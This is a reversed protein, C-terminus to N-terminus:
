QTNNENGKWPTGSNTNKNDIYLRDVYVGPINKEKLSQLHQRFEEPRPAATMFLTWRSRDWNVPSFDNLYVALVNWAFTACNPGNVYWRRGFGLNGESDIPFYFKSFHDTTCLDLYSRAAKAQNQRACVRIIFVIDTRTEPTIRRCSEKGSKKYAESLPNFGLPHDLQSTYVAVHSIHNNDVNGSWFSDDYDYFLFYVCDEAKM